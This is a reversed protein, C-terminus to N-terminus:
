RQVYDIQVRINRFVIGFIVKKTSHEAVKRNIGTSSYNVVFVGVICLLMGGLSVSTIKENYLIWSTLAVLPTVLYFLNAVSGAEGRKILIMLLSMAGISVFIILWSLGLIFSLNWDIEMTEYVVAIPIMFMAASAYQICVSPLVNAESCYKKQVITAASIALLALVCLSVAFPSFGANLGAIDPTTFQNAESGGELIIITVGVLSSLMGFLKRKTIKERLFVGSLLVSIIPQLSLIIACLRIDIGHYISSFLGGAYVGNILVGVISCHIIDIGRKPWEIRKWLVIFFLILATIENRIVVFTAPEVYASCFEIAIYASSWLVVFLVPIWNSFGM